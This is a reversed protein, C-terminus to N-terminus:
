RAATADAATGQVLATGALACTIGRRDDRWEPAPRRRTTARAASARPPAFTIRTSRSCRRGLRRTPRHIDTCPLLRGPDLRAERPYCSQDGRACIRDRIGRDHRYRVTRHHPSRAPPAAHTIPHVSNHSTLSFSFRHCHSLFRVWGSLIWYSRSASRQVRSSTIGCAAWTSSSFSCLDSACRDGLASNALIPSNSNALPVFLSHSSPPHSSSPYPMFNTSCRM